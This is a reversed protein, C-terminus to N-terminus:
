FEIIRGNKSYRPMRYIKIRGVQLPKSKDSHMYKQISVRIVESVSWGKADAYNKLSEYEEDNIKFSVVKM